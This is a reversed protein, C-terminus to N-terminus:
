SQIAAALGTTGDLAATLAYLDGAVYVTRSGLSSLLASLAQVSATYAAIPGPVKAATLAAALAAELGAITNAEQLLYTFSWAGVAAFVKGIEAVIQPAPPISPSGSAFKAWFANAFVAQKSQLVTYLSRPVPAGAATSKTLEFSTTTLAASSGLEPQYLRLAPAKSTPDVTVFSQVSATVSGIARDPMGAEALALSLGLSAIFNDLTLDYPVANSLVANNQQALLAANGSVETATFAGQQQLSGLLVAHATTLTDVTAKLAAVSQEASLTRQELNFYASKAELINNTLLPM